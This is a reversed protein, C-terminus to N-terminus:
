CNMQKQNYGDRNKIMYKNFLILWQVVIVDCETMAINHLL